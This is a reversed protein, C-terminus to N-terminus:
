DRDGGHRRAPANPALHQQVLVAAVFGVAAIAQAVAPTDYFLVGGLLMFVTAVCVGIWIDRYSSM